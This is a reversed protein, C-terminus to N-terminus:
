YAMHRVRGARSGSVDSHRSTRRTPASTPTRGSRGQGVLTRGIKLDFALRLIEIEIDRDTVRAELPITIAGGLKFALQTTVFHNRRLGSTSCPRLSRLFQRTKVQSRRVGALAM